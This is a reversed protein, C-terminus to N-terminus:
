TASQQYSRPMTEMQTILFPLYILNIGGGRLVEGQNGKEKIDATIQRSNLINQWSLM